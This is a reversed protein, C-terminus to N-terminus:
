RKKLRRQYFHNILIAYLGNDTVNTGTRFSDPLGMQLALFLAMFPALADAPIRLVQAVPLAFLVLEGPIGPVGYGILVVIPVLTLLQTFSPHIGVLIAVIGTLLIVHMTTGNVNLYAGLGLVLRRVNSDIKYNEKILAMNLPMSVVESSTAWALPYVKIWYRKIFGRIFFPNRVYAKVLLVSMAQWIFCGIGILFSGFLYILVIGYGTSVSADLGFIDLKGVGQSTLDATASASLSSKLIEPLSYIYGGLIFMMLPIFPSLFNGISDIAQAALRLANYLKAFYLAAIAILSSSWIAIFIPNGLLTRGIILLSQTVTLDSITTQGDAFFPLGLALSTFLVAWVAAIIRTVSFWLFTKGVFSSGGKEKFLGALSPALVIFIALPALFCLMDIFKEVAASSVGMISPIRAAALIGLPFAAIVFVVNYKNYFSYLKSLNLFKM